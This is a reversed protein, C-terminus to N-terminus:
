KPVAPNIHWNMPQQSTSERIILADPHEAKIRAICSENYPNYTEDSVEQTSAIGIPAGHRCADLKQQVIPNSSTYRIEPLYKIKPLYNTESLYKPASKTASASSICLVALAGALFTNKM